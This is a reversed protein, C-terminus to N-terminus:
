IRGVSREKNEKDAMTGKKKKEKRKKFFSKNIIIFLYVTLADPKM